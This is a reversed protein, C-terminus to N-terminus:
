CCWEARGMQRRPSLLHRAAAGVSSLTLGPRTDPRPREWLLNLLRWIGVVGIWGLVFETLPRWHALTGFASAVLIPAYVTGMALTLMPVAFCAVTELTVLACVLQEARTYVRDAHPSAPTSAFLM